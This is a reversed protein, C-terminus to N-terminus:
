LLVDLPRRFSNKCELSELSADRGFYYFDFPTVNKGFHYPVHRVMKPDFFIKNDKIESKICDISHNPM